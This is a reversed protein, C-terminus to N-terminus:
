VSRSYFQHSEVFRSALDFLAILESPPSFLAFSSTVAQREKEIDNMTINKGVIRSLLELASAQEITRAQGRDLRQQAAARIAPVIKNKQQSPTSAPPASSPSLLSSYASSPSSFVSSPSSASVPSPSSPNRVVATSRRTRTKQVPAPKPASPASKVPASNSKAPAAPARTVVTKAAKVQVPKTPKAQKAPQPNAQTQRRSRAVVIEEEDHEEHQERSARRKGFVAFPNEPLKRM